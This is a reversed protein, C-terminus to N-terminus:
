GLQEIFEDWSLLNSDKDSIIPSTIFPWQINLQSDNWKLGIESEVEYVEDVKYGIITNNELTCFGHLFGKPLFLGDGLNNLKINYCKGFNISEKRIDIFIDIISGSILYIFKSQEHPPKQYHLGRITNKERSFSINDQLFNIDFGLNTFNFKNYLEFFSGRNDEHISPKISYVESCIEKIIM